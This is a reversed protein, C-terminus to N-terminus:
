KWAESQKLAGRSLDVETQPIALREHKGKQFGLPALVAEARGTRVLDWFRHGELALEVRREHFILDGLATGTAAIDPLIADNGGRARERVMNLYVLADTDKGNHNLVEAAMLLVDAYRILRRNHDFQSPVNTGPTWVKQNYCEIEILNGSGDRTEDPTSPNDGIITIGDLMEGLFIITADRRPDDSEFANMLDLSPRNFGWGRNPTGRVGQVNGYQGGGKELGEVGIAGVEFVSEAGFEGSKSNADAFSPMLSYQGSNIVELLYKEANVYDGQYLYVKGLLAKAAGKTARGLDAAAYESREPLSQIATLLDEVILSYIESAPSRELTAPTEVAIVIPVDGWARVLDFYFLARLFRAEALYRSKLSEEMGISPIKELVVNARKIGQYLVSWWSMLSGETPIHQFKDYPGISAAGDTPNSGKHADDSMIDPIPFLGSNFSGDRLTNYMANTAGLADQATTPFNQSLLEGQVPKDLFDDCALPTLALASVAAIRKLSNLSYLFSLMKM